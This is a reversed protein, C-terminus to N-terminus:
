NILNQHLQYYQIGVISQRLMFDIMRANNRNEDNKDYGMIIQLLIRKTFILHRNRFLMKILIGVPHGLFM